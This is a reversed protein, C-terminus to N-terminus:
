DMSSKQWPVFEGGWIRRLLKLRREASILNSVIKAGCQQHSSYGPARKPGPTFDFSRDLALVATMWLTVQKPWIGSVSLTTAKVFAAACVTEKRAAKSEQWRRRGKLRGQAVNWEAVHRYFRQRAVGLESSLDAVKTEKQGMAGKALRVRAATM